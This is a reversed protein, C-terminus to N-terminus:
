TSAGTAAGDASKGSGRSEPSVFAVRAGCLDSGRSVVEPGIREAAVLRGILRGDTRLPVSTVALPAGEYAILGPELGSARVEGLDDDSWAATTRGERDLFAILGAREREALQSAYFRLTPADGVELTARFQPTGSVARYRENLSELHNAALLETSEAAGELRRLSAEHLDATLTRDQLILALGTAFTAAASLIMLIRGTLGVRYRLNM